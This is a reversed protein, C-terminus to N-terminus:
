GQGGPPILRALDRSLSGDRMYELLVRANNAQGVQLLSLTYVLEAGAEEAGVEEAEGEPVRLATLSIPEAKQFRDLQIGSAPLFAQVRGTEQGAEMTWLVDDGTLNGFHLVYHTEGGIPAPLQAMLEFGPVMVYAPHDFTFGLSDLTTEFAQVEEATLESRPQILPALALSVVINGRRTLASTRAGALSGDAGPQLPAPETWPRYQEVDWLDEPSEVFRGTGNAATAAEAAQCIPSAVDTCAELVASRVFIAGECPQAEVRAPAGDRARAQGLTVQEQIAADIRQLIGSRGAAREALISSDAAALYRVALASDSAFWDAVAQELPDGPDLPTVDGSDELSVARGLANLRELRQAIPELGANVEALRAVRGVCAKSRAVEVASLNPPPDNQALLTSPLGGVIFLALVPFFRNLTKM